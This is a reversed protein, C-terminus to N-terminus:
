DVTKKRRSSSKLVLPSYRGRMEIEIVFATILALPAAWSMWSFVDFLIKHTSTVYVTAGDKEIPHSQTQTAIPAADSYVLGHWYATSIAAAFTALVAVSLTARLWKKWSAEVIKPPDGPQGDALFDSEWYHVFRLIDLVAFAGIASLFFVIPAFHEETLLSPGHIAMLICGFVLGALVAVVIRIPGAGPWHWNLKRRRRVSLLVIIAALSVSLVIEGPLTLTSGFRIMPMMAVLFALLAVLEFSYRRRKYPWLRHM